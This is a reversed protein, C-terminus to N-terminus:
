RHSQPHTMQRRPVPRPTYFNIAPPITTLVPTQPAQPAEPPKPHTPKSHIMGGEYRKSEKRKKRTLFYILVLLILIMLIFAIILIFLTNTQKKCEFAEGDKEPKGELTGCNNLDQCTYYKFGDEQCGGWTCYWNPICEVICEQMEIPKGLLTNCSNFDTCDRTQTEDECESWDTCDWDPICGKVVEKVASHNLPWVKFQKGAAACNYGSSNGPCQVLIESTSNCNTTFDNLSDVEGSDIICISDSTNSLKDFWVTKGKAELNKVIAYGFADNADSTEIEIPCINLTNAFDWNFTANTNEEVLKISKNGSFLSQNVLYDGVFAKDINLSCFDGVVNNDNCDQYVSINAKPPTQGCANLDIQHTDNIDGICTSTNIWNPICTCAGDQCGTACTTTGSSPLFSNPKSGPVCIRETLILGNCSDTNNYFTAPNSADSFGWASGKQNYNAGGDTDTCTSCGEDKSGYGTDGPCQNDVNDCLEPAGPFISANNDNCDIIKCAVDKYIFGDGDSDFEACQLQHGTIKTELTNGFFVFIMFAMLILILISMGRGMEM